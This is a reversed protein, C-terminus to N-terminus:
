TLSRLYKLVRMQDELNVDKGGPIGDCCETEMLALMERLASYMGVAPYINKTLHHILKLTQFGDFWNYFQREYTKFDKLNRRIRPWVTPFGREILFSTLVPDIDSTGALIQNVDSPFSEKMLRLWKKLILFIRPDYLCSENRNGSIIDGIAAGTGFPVRTSVRASPYVVTDNIRGIRGNKALKNLFYFDEGAERRNMGRVALYADTTTIITSGMSHFAYPSGAYQLGMVWYRLFIEYACIAAQDVAASPLRHEYTVIGAQINGSSFHKQIAPLYHPQVLTDADLSIILRPENESTGLLRLAMDMGIKRAMGVGGVKSPIEWGRSSADIYGINVPRDAIRHLVARQEEPLAFGAFSQRRILADILSLTTANNDRVEASADEKNNIVCLILSRELLADPNAAVSALTDFLMDKEAYAPIVVVQEFGEFRAARMAWRTDVAYRALYDNLLSAKKM